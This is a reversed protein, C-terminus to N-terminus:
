TACCCGNEGRDCPPVRHRPLGPRQDVHVAPTFRRLDFAAKAANLSPDIESLVLVADSDYATAAADYAQGATAPHVVLAGHLGMATQYQTNPVLGSEYLYTGAHTATFSYTRTSGPAVGTLDPPMPQGQFLLATDM